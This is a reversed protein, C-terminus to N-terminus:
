LFRGIQLVNIIVQISYYKLTLFFNLYTLLQQEVPVVHLSDQAAHHILHLGNLLRLSNEVNCCLVGGTLPEDHISVQEVPRLM